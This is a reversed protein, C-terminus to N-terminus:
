EHKVINLQKTFLFADKNTCRRKLNCNLCCIIVNDENHGLNNNIRDLTWQKTERVIEYLISVNEKCYYCFLSSEMMKQCVSKFTIFNVENYRNKHIDQQKYSSIKKEIEVKIKKYIEINECEKELYYISYLNEFIEKQKEHSFYEIPIGNKEIIKRKKIIPPNKKLKNIQYKNNIGKIEIKKETNVNEDM